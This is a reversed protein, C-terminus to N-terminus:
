KKGANSIKTIRKNKQKTGIIECLSTGKGGTLGPIYKQACMKYNNSLSDSIDLLIIVSITM